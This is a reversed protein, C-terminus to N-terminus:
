LPAKPSAANDDGENCTRISYISSHQLPNAVIERGHVGFVSQYVIIMLILAAMMDCSSSVNSEGVIEIAESFTFAFRM